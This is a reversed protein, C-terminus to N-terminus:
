RGAFQAGLLSTLAETVARDEGVYLVTLRGRRYFHPPAVWTIMMTPPNGDPGLQDSEARAEPETAYEFTQVEAAARLAGGSVAVIKGDPTFFDQKITGKPEAQLGKARLAAIFGAYDGIGGLSAPAASAAVSAPAPAPGGTGTRPGVGPSATCASLVAGLALPALFGLTRM